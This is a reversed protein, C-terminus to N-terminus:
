RCAPVGKALEPLVCIVSVGQRQAATVRFGAQRYAPPVLETNIIFINFSRSNVGGKPPLLAHVKHKFAKGIFTILSIKEIKAM